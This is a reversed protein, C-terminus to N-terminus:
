VGWQKFYGSKGFNSETIDPYRLVQGNDMYRMRQAMYSFSSSYHSSIFCTCARSIMLDILAGQEPVLSAIDKLTQKAAAVATNSAGGAALSATHATSTLNAIVKQLALERTYINSFGMSGLKHLVKEARDKQITGNTANSTSGRGNSNNNEYLSSNFLGSALYLGPADALRGQQPGRTHSKLCQHTNIANLALTAEKEFSTHEYM